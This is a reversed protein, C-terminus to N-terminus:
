AFRCKEGSPLIFLLLLTAEDIGKYSLLRELIGVFSGSAESKM